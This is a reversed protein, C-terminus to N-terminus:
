ETEFVPNYPTMAFGLGIFRSERNHTTRCTQILKDCGATVECQAGVWRSPPRRAMLFTDGSQWYRIMLRLGDVEVWGRHWFFGPQVPLGTIVMTPGDVFDVVGSAVKGQKSAGCTTPDYLTWICQHEATLGGSGEMYSKWTKCDVGVLGTKKQYNRTVLDVRGIFRTTSQSDADGDVRENVQVYVPSHPEGSSLDDTFGDLPLIITCPKEDLVGSDKIPKVEMKPTSLYTLGGSAADTTWDTYAQFRLPDGYSFRVLSMRRKSSRQAITM